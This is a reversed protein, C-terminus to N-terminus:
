VLKKKRKVLVISTAAAGLVVAGAGGGAIAMHGDSLAISIVYTESYGDGAAATVTVKGFRKAELIGDENITAVDTNDVSWTIAPYTANDPSVVATLHTSEGEKIKEGASSSIEISEVDIPLVTFEIQKEIDKQKATITVTGVAVTTICGESDITAISEDSSIWEIKKDSTNEPLIVATLTTTDGIRATDSGEIDLTEAKIENVTITASASVGSKATASIKATGVGVCSIEGKESITAVSTNDTNWTIEPYTADEPAIAASLLLTDGLFLEASEQSLTVKEVKKEIVNVVRTGVVGNSSTANINVKGEALATVKGKDDVTAIKPDSSSWKITPNDVNEPTIIAKFELSAGIYIPDKADVAYEVAVKQAVIEIVSIKISGVKGNFTTATLTATGYGVAKITDGSVYAVNRDSSEWDISTNCSNAPYVAASVSTTEGIGLSTKSTSIKVSSPFVDRYPCYGYDHLHAPYGGCHYHYSGLGSKNKNDRHGGSSDTRGSHAYVPLLLNPIVLILTLVIALITSIKRKM